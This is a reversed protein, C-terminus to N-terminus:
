FIRLLQHPMTFYVYPQLHNIYSDTIFTQSIRKTGSTKLNWTRTCVENFIKSLVGSYKMQSLLMKAM